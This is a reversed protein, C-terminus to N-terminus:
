KIDNGLTKINANRMLCIIIIIGILGAMVFMLGMGAGKGLGVIKSCIEQLASSTEMFPEFIYDAFVAGMLCGIPTLSQTIM